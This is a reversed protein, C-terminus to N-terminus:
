KTYLSSHIDVETWVVTNGESSSNVGCIHDSFPFLEGLLEWQFTLGCKYFTFKKNYSFQDYSLAM